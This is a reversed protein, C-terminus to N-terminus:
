IQSQPYRPKVVYHYEAVKNKALLKSEHAQCDDIFYSRLPVALITVQYTITYVQSM